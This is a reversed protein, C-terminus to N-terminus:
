HQEKRQGVEQWQNCEQLLVKCFLFGLLSELIRRKGLLVERGSEDSWTGLVKEISLERQRATIQDKEWILKLSVMERVMDSFGCLVRLM